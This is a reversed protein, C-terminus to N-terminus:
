ILYLFCMWCKRHERSDRFWADRSNCNGVAMLWAGCVCVCVLANASTAPVPVNLLQTLRAHSKFQVNSPRERTGDDSLALGGLCVCVSYPSLEIRDSARPDAAAPQTIPLDRVKCVISHANNNARHVTRPSVHNEFHNIRKTRQTSAGTLKHYYTFTFSTNPSAPRASCLWSSCPRGFM